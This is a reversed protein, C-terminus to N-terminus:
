VRNEKTQRCFHIKNEQNIICDLLNLSPKYELTRDTIKSIKNNYFKSNLYFDRFINPEDNGVIKTDGLPVIRYAASSIENDNRTITVSSDNQLTADLIGDIYWDISYDSESVVLGHSVVINREDDFAASIDHLGQNVLAKVEFAEQGIKDWQVGESRTRSNIYGSYGSGLGNMVTDYSPRYTDETGWYTGEYMGVGDTSVTDDYGNVNDIDSIHHKWRLAEPTNQSTSNASIDVQGCELDTLDTTDICEFLVNYDSTYEDGLDSFIHGFEHKMTLIVDNVARYLSTTISQISIKEVTNAVGRGDVGTVVTYSNTNSFYKQSESKVLDIFDWATYRSLASKCFHKNKSLFNDFELDTNTFNCRGGGSM